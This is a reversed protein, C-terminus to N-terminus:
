TFLHLTIVALQTRSFMTGVAEASGIWCEGQRRSFHLRLSPQCVAIGSIELHLLSAPPGIPEGMSKRASVIDRKEQLGQKRRKTIGM